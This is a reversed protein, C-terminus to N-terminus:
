SEMVSCVVAFRALVTPVLKPEPLAPGPLKPEKPLEWHPNEEGPRRGHGHRGQIGEDRGPEVDDGDEGARVRRESAFADQRRRGNSGTGRFQADAIMWAALTSAATVSCIAAAAGSTAAM